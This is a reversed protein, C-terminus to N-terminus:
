DDYEIELEDYELEGNAEAEDFAEQISRELEPDTVNV